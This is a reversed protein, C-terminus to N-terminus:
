WRLRDITYDAEVDAADLGGQIGGRVHLTKCGAKRAGAIDHAPSDGIMLVRAPAPDGLARIGAAFMERGPKGVTLVSGGMAAYDEAICGAGFAEGGNLYMIRDPNACIAPVARAILPALTDRYAERSFREPEAGAILIIDTGPGAEVQRVDLGEIVSTDEDRSLITIGAGPRLRGDGLMGAITTRALEGSSIVGVFLRPPFGLRALRDSNLSARKGSNTLAVVPVSRQQLAQMCPLSGEFAQRGDHLVGFQDVLVADFADAIESLGDISRTM